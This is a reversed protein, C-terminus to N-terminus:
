FILVPLTVTNQRGSVARMVTAWAAVVVVLMLVYGALIPGASPSLAGIISQGAENLAHLTVLWRAALSVLYGLQSPAGAVLNILLSPAGQVLTSVGEWVIWLVSVAILAIAAAGTAFVGIGAFVRRPAARRAPQRALRGAFRAAFGPAPAVQAASTLVRDVQQFAAWRARCEECTALHATLDARERANLRGDLMLSMREGYDHAMM